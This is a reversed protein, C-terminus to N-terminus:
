AKREDIDTSRDLEVPIVHTSDPYLDALNKPLKRSLNQDFLFKL